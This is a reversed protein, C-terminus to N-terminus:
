VPRDPYIAKPFRVSVLAACVGLIVLAFVSGEPGASGGGLWNAGQASSNLLRGHGLLGSNATGYFFTEAWDWAAHYGLAFWLNGTRRIMFCFLLGTGLVQLIGIVTEGPNPLHAVAFGISLALAAGWFQIRRAAAFFLYGRFVLEESISVFVFVLCWGVAYRWAAIGRLAVSEIRFAGVAWLILALGSLMAFGWLAGEWFRWGFAQRPPIGYDGVPRKAMRAAIWTALLIFFASLGRSVLGGEVTSLAAAPGGMKRWLITLLVGPIALGIVLFASMQKWGTV